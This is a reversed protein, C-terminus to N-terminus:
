ALIGVVVICCGSLFFNCSRYHQGIEPRRVRGKQSVSIAAQAVEEFLVAPSDVMGFEQVNIIMPFAATSVEEFLVSAHFANSLFKALQFYRQIGCRFRVPPMGRKYLLFVWNM